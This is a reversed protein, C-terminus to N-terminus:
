KQVFRVAGTTWYVNNADITFDLVRDVLYKRQEAITCGNKSCGMVSSSTGAATMWYVSTGDVELRRVFTDPTTVPTTTTCGAVSCKGIFGSEAYYVDVGDTALASVGALGSVLPTAAASGDAPAKFITSSTAFYATGNALAVTAAYTLGSPATALTTPTCAADVNPCARVETAQVWVAHNADAAVAAPTPTTALTRPANGCGDVSCRYLPVNSTAASTVIAAGGGIAIYRPAAMVGVQVSVMACGTGRCKRVTDCTGGGVGCTSQSNAWYVFTQDTALYSAAIGGGVSVLDAAACLGGSCAGGNCSHGCWGCNNPDTDLNACANGCVTAGCADVAADHTEVGDDDDGSGKSTCGLVISILVCVGRAVM